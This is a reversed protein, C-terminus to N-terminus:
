YWLCLLTDKPVYSVMKRLWSKTQPHVKEDFFNVVKNKSTARLLSDLVVLDVVGVGFDGFIDLISEQEGQPHM